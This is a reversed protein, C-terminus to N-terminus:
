YGKAYAVVDWKSDISSYVAGIYDTKGSTTQTLATVDTGFRFGGAGTNLALTRAGGSALHRIIIKQGNSANSPIAITRDGAAALTFVNGLSADLAPTAGDALAVVTAAQAAALAVTPDGAVGGGNTVTIGAGATITRLAWTNAATKFLGGSTGALAGIAIVDADAAFPNMVQWYTGDYEFDYLGGSVIAGSPPDTGDQLKVSTAATSDVALTCAATNSFNVKASVRMGRALASIGMDTALVYANSSGTTTKAGTIAGVMAAIEAMIAREGNNLGAASCGEAINVGGVTGNSAATTSWSQYINSM